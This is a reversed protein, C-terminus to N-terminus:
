IRQSFNKNMLNCREDFNYKVLKYLNVLDNFSKTKNAINAFKYQLPHRHMIKSNMMYNIENELYKITM